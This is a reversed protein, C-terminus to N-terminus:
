VMASFRANVEEMSVDEVHTALTWVHGFPDALTGARDGYFQNEVPRIETAGAAIARNFLSDVDEVYVMLSVPTGGIAQASRYDMEPFEDSLMIPSNGIKIEAHALKGSPDALRMLETAGFAQEYFAIAGAADHVILYPTVAPYGDPIPKVAM